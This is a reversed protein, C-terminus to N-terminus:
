EHIIPEDERKITEVQNTEKVLNHGKIKWIGDKPVKLGSPLIAATVIAQQAIDAFMIDQLHTLTIM